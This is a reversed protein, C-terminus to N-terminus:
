HNRGLKRLLPYVGAVSLASLVLYFLGVAVFGDRLPDEHVLLGAELSAYQGLCWILLPNVMFNAINVLSTMRGIIREECEAQLTTWTIIGVIHCFMGFFAMYVIALGLTGAGALQYIAGAAVLLSATPVWAKKGYKLLVGPIALGCIMAGFGYAMELIGFGKPGTELSEKCFGALLVNVSNAAFRPVLGFLAMFFLQLNARAYRMGESFERIFNHGQHGPPHVRESDKFWHQIAIWGLMGVGFGLADVSFSGVPGLVNYFIGALGAGLLYGGQMLATNLGNAHLLEKKELNERLFAPLATWYLANGISMLPSYVFLHWPEFNGSVMLALLGIDLLCSYGTGVVLLKRRKYRDVLVGCIPNIFFVPLMYSLVLWAMSAPSGTEKYLIWHSAVFHFGGGMSTVAQFLM